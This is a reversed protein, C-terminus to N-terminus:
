TIGALVSMAEDEPVYKAHRGVVLALEGEWDVSRSSRPLLIPQEHAVCTTGYRSFISPQKPIAVGLEAAHSVYNLGVCFLKADSEAVPLFASIKERPLTISNRRVADALNSM